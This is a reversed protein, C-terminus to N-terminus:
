ETAVGNEGRERCSARGIKAKDMNPSNTLRPGIDETLEALTQMVQSHHFAEQRIRSVMDLDVPEARQAAQAVAPQAASGMTALAVAAALLYQKLTTGWPHIPRGLRLPRRHGCGPGKTM